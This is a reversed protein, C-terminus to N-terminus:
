SDLAARLVDPRDTTIGDVGSSALRRLSAADNVTYAYVRYLANHAQRVYGAGASGKPVHIVDAYLRSRLMEAFTPAGLLGMEITSPLRENMDRVASWQFSQVLTRGRVHWHRDAKLLAAVRQTLGPYKDPEKLELVVGDGTAKVAKLAEALTPVRQGRYAKGFWAGADLTKIQKLTLDGVRWSTRKPFKKRADTTRTLTADHIVVLKGDKTQRVDLEILDAGRKGAERIAALTNEPAYASAGRHAIVVVSRGARANPQMPSAAWAAQPPEARVPAAPLVLPLVAAATLVAGLRAM